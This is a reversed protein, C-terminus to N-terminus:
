SVPIRVYHRKLMKIVLACAVFVLIWFGFPKKTFVDLLFGAGVASFMGSYLDYKEFMNLLIVFIFLINPIFGAFSFHAFFSTQLLALIYLFPLFFITKKM